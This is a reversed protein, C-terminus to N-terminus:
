VPYCIKRYSHYNASKHRSWAAVETIASIIGWGKMVLVGSYLLKNLDVSNKIVTISAYQSDYRYIKKAKYIIGEM